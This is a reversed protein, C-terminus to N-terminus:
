VHLRNFFFQLVSSLVLLLRTAGPALATVPVGCGDSLVQVDIRENCDLERPLVLCCRIDIPIQKNVEEIDAWKKSQTIEELILWRTDITSRSCLHLLLRCENSPIEVVNPVNSFTYTVGKELLTENHRRSDAALM